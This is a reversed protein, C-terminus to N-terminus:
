EPTSVGQSVVVVNKRPRGRLKKLQLKRRQRRVMATSISSTTLESLKTAIVEDAMTEHNNRIFDIESDTWKKYTAM